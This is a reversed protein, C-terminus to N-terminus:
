PRNADTATAGTVTNVDTQQGEVFLSTRNLNQQGRTAATIPTTTVGDATTVTRTGLEFNVVELDKLPSETTLKILTLNESALRLQKVRVTPLTIQKDAVFLATVITGDPKTRRTQLNAGEPLVLDKVLAPLIVSEGAGVSFDKGDVSYTIPKGDEPVMVSIESKQKKQISASGQQAHAVGTSLLMATSCFVGTAILTSFKM